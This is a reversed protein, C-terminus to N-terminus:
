LGAVLCPINIRMISALHNYSNLIIHTYTNICKWINFFVTSYIFLLLYVWKLLINVQQVGETGFAARIEELEQTLEEVVQTKAVLAKEMDPITGAKKIQQLPEVEDQMLFFFVM